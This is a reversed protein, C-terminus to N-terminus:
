IIKKCKNLKELNITKLNTGHLLATTLLQLILNVSYYNDNNGPIPLNIYVDTNNTDIISIIYKNLHIAERFALHDKTLNVIFIITPINTLNYFSNYKISLKKFSTINKFFKKTKWSFIPKNFLTILYRFWKLLLINTYIQKWNTFFGPIFKDNLYYNLTILSTLEISKTFQEQSNIFLIKQNNFGINYFFVYSLILSKATKILDIICINNIIKYIYKNKQLNSKQFSHGLYIKSQILDNLTILNM